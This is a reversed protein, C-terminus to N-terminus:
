KICDTSIPIWALGVEARGGWIENMFAPPTKPLNIGLKRASRTPLKLMRIGTVNKVADEIRARRPLMSTPPIMKIESRYPAM